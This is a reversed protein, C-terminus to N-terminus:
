RPTLAGGRAPGTPFPKLAKDMLSENLSIGPMSLRNDERVLWTGSGTSFGNKVRSPWFEAGMM